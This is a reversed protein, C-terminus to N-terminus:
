AAQREERNVLFEVKRRAENLSEAKISWTQTRFGLSKPLRDGLRADFESIVGRTVFYHHDYGVIRDLKMHTRLRADLNPMVEDFWTEKTDEDGSWRERLRRSPESVRPPPGSYRLVIVEAAAKPPARKKIAPKKPSAKKAPKKTPKAATKKTSM